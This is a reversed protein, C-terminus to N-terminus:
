RRKAREWISQLREQFPSPTRGSPEEGPWAATEERSLEKLCTIGGPTVGLLLYREELRVLLLKQDKGLSLQEIPVLHRGALQVGPQGLGGAICRTALYALALVAAVVALAGLLQIVTGM